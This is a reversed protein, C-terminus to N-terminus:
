LWFAMAGIKKLNELDSFVSSSTTNSLLVNCSFGGRWISFGEGKSFSVSRVGFLCLLSLACCCHRTEGESRRRGLRRCEGECVRRWVIVSKIIIIDQTQCPHQKAYRYITNWIWGHAQSYTDLKLAIHRSSTTISLLLSTRIRM